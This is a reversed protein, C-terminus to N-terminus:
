FRVGTFHEDRAYTWRGFWGITRRGPPFTRPNDLDQWVSCSYDCSPFELKFTRFLMPSVLPFHMHVYVVSDMPSMMKDKLTAAQGYPGPTGSSSMAESASAQPTAHGSDSQAHAAGTLRCHRLLVYFVLARILLLGLIGGILPGKSDSHNSNSGVAAGVGAPTPQSSSATGSASQSTTSDTSFTFRPPDRSDADVLAEEKATTAPPPESAAAVLRAATENFELQPGGGSNFQCLQCGEIVSYMVTNCSHEDPEFLHEDYFQGPDDLPINITTSLPLQKYNFGNVFAGEALLRSSYNTSQNEHGICGHGDVINPIVTVLPNSDSPRVM